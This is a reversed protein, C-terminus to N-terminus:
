SKRGESLIQIALPDSLIEHTKLCECKNLAELAKKLLERHATLDAKQKEVIKDLVTWNCYPCDGSIVDQKVHECEPIESM